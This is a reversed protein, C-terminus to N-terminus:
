FSDLDRQSPAPKTTATSPLAPASPASLSPATLSPARAKGLDADWDKLARAASEDAPKASASAKQGIQDSWIDTADRSDPPRVPKKKTRAVPVNPASPLPETTPALPQISVPEPAKSDPEFKPKSPQMIIGAIFILVLLGIIFAAVSGEWSRSPRFVVGTGLPRPTPTFPKFPKQWRPRFRPNREPEVWVAHPPLQEIAGLMAICVREFRAPDSLVGGEQHVVNNRERCAWSFDQVLGPSFYSTFGSVKEWMGNGTAGRSSLASEIRRALKIALEIDSVESSEREPKPSIRPYLPTPNRQM